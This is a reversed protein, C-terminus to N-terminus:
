RAHHLYEEFTTPLPSKFTQRQGSPLTLELQSAHLLLRDHARGGYFSDGVIPHGLQKLHVRLQHTRGTTPQLEILSSAQGVKIVKLHTQAPKGNAHVRFTQPKKPNRGIPWELNLELQKLVGTVVAHYTKVVARSSFQRQLFERAAETKAAIIVGSTGRDLRHVIGARDSVDEPYFHERMYSAVTFEPNFAGKSHTLLGAPKDFVIVDGDEYIIPLVQAEIEQEPVKIAVKDGTQLNYDPAVAGGNVTAYTAKIAKQWYSRSQEPLEAALFVDLRKGVQNADVLLESM